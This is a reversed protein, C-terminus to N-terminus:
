TKGLTSGLEATLAELRCTLRSHIADLGDAMFSLSSEVGPNQGLRRVTEAAKAVDAIAAALGDVHVRLQEPDPARPNATM